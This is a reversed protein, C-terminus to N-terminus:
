FILNHFYLFVANLRKNGFMIYQCLLTDVLGSCLLYLSSFFSKDNGKLNGRNM